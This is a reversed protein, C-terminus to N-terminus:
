HKHLYIEKEVLERWSGIYEWFFVSWFQLMYNAIKCTISIIKRQMEKTNELYRFIIMKNGRCDCFKNLFKLMATVKRYEVKLKPQIKVSRPEQIKSRNEAKELRLQCINGQKKKCNTCEELSPNTFTHSERRQHTM